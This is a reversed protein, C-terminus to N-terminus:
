WNELTYLCADQAPPLQVCAFVGGRETQSQNGNDLTLCLGKEHTMLGCTSYHKFLMEYKIEITVEDRKLSEM